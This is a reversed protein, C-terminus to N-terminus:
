IVSYLIIWGCFFNATNGTSFISTHRFTVLTVTLKIFELGVKDSRSKFLHDETIEVTCKVCDGFFAAGDGGASENLDQISCMRIYFEEKKEYEDDDIIKIEIDKSFHIRLLSVYQACSEM